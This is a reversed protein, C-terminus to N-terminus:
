DFFNEVEEISLTSYGLDSPSVHKEDIGVCFAILLEIQRKFDQTLEEIFDHGFHFRNYEITIDLQQHIVMASIELVAERPRRKSVQDKSVERAITFCRGSLDSDIQGMYNFIIEPQYREEPVFSSSLNKLIGYGLGKSPVKRVSEKVEKIERALDDSFEMNFSVPYDATFWGVTRTVDIDSFPHDRGYSELM